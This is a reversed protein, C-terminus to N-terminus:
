RISILGLLSALDHDNFKIGASVTFTQDHSKSILNEGTLRAYFMNWIRFETNLRVYPNQKENYSFADLSIISNAKTWHYDAGIGGESEIIGVRFGWPGFRRGLMANFKLANKKLLVKNEVTTVGNVTSTTQTETDVVGGFKNFAAGLRYFREPATYLDVNFQTQSGYASNKGTFISVEAEINNIRNMIKGVNTLTDDVKNIVEEDRLLKGVTGKGAKVDGVVVRIDSMTQKADLLIPEVNKLYSMLSERQNRDTEYALQATVRNVNDIINSLKAENAAILRKLSFTTENINMVIEKMLNRNDKHLSERIAKAIKKIEDLTESANNTLNAMGNSEVSKVISGEELRKLNQNGTFVEIYKDGLLGVTKMSLYSDTTLKIDEKLQFHILAQNNVLEVKTIKGANIGAVKISSKEFIGTADSFVVKYNIHKGFGSQNITLMFSTFVFCGLAILTILGVKFESM